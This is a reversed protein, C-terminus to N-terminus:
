SCNFDHFKQFRDKYFFNVKTESDRVLYDGLEGRISLIDEALSRSIKDFYWEKESFIHSWKFGSLRKSPVEILEQSSKEKIVKVYNVPILGKQGKSNKALWWFVDDIPHDLILLTEGAVFSLESPNLSTFNYLAVVTQFFVIYISYM